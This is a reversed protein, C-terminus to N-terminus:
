INFFFFNYTKYVFYQDTIYQLSHNYACTEISKNVDAVALLPSEDHLSVTSYEVKMNYNYAM